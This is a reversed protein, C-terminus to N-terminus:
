TESNKHGEFLIMLYLNERFVSKMMEFRVPAITNSTRMATVIFIVATRYSSV